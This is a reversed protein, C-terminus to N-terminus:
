YIIHIFIKYALIFLHSFFHYLTPFLIVLIVLRSVILLIWWGLVKLIRKSWKYSQQYSINIVGANTDAISEFAEQSLDITGRCSGPPCHDVIKVVVSGSGLCPEPTGENTGSLCTVQYMQGCAGGDNWFEDSAAAIMLTSPPTYYTATGSDQASTLSISSLSLILLATLSVLSSHLQIAM